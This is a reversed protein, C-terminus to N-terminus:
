RTVVVLVLLALMLEITSDLALTHADVVFLLLRDQVFEELIIISLRAALTTVVVGLGDCVVVCIDIRAEVLLKHILSVKSEIWRPLGDYRSRVVSTSLVTTLTVDHLNFGHITTFEICLLTVASLCDLDLTRHVTVDVHVLSTATQVDM